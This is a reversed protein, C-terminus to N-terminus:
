DSVAETRKVNIESIFEKGSNEKQNTDLNIFYLNFKWDQVTKTVGDTSILHSSAVTFDGTATTLDFGSVDGMTVYDLGTISTVPSGDPDLIELVLEASSEDKTYTFENKSINLYIYYDESYAEPAILDASITVSTSLDEGDELLNLQTPYIELDGSKSFNFEALEELDTSLEQSEINDMDAFMYATTVGISVIVVILLLILLLYKSNNESKEKKIEKDKEM